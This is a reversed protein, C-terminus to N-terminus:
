LMKPVRIKFTTGQGEASTFSVQGKLFQEGMLKMSYTGLGRDAGKTSFSRQFVQLQSERPMDAPNHVTFEVQDGLDHCDITITDGPRSAELANKVMNFVVRSLLVPDTTLDTSIFDPGTVIKLGQASDLGQALRIVDAVLPGSNLPKPVVALEHSEAALLQRQAKIEDILMGSTSHIDNGIEAVQDPELDALLGALGWVAGATNLVDHFFIRELARRRKEGGIDILSFVLYKKGNVEFPSASVRLDIAESNEKRLIRCERVDRNGNLGSLIALAAGCQSCFETTGCGSSNESAHICGLAEGPRMGYICAPDKINLKELLVRNAFVVQREENLIMVIDFVSDLISGLTTRLDQMIATQAQVEDSSLRAAPAFQTELEEHAMHVVDKGILL